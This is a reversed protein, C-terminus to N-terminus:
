TTTADRWAGFTGLALCLNGTLQSTRQVFGTRRAATAIADSAFCDTLRSVARRPGTTM